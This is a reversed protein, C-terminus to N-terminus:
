CYQSRGRTPFCPCTSPRDSVVVAVSPGLAEQLEPPPTSPLKQSGDATCYGLDQEDGSLLALDEDLGTNEYRSWRAEAYKTMIWRGAELGPDHRYKKEAHIEELFLIGIIM